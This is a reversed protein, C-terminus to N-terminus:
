VSPEATSGGGVRCQNKGLHGMGGVNPKTECPLGGPFRTTKCSLGRGSSVRFKLSSVEEWNAKNQVILSEAALLASVTPEEDGRRTAPLHAEGAM